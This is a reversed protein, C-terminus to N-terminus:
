SKLGTSGFGGEGRETESLKDVEKFETPVVKELYAQAIRDGEDYPFDDYELVIYPDKKVKYSIGLFKKHETHPIIAINTPIARFKLMIEGRYDSDILPDNQLVWTYKTFSSRPVIRLRYGKPLQTAIGLKCEVFDPATQNIETVTVDWGGAYVTAQIPLTAEPNLKKVKVEM